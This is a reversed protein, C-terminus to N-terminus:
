KKFWTGDPKQFWHGAQGNEVIMAARREGVLVPSAGQNKGIAAYVAARDTNEAQVLTQEPKNATRYELFGKNNEGIVGQDKLTNIAPIRAAMQEKISASHAVAAMFIFGALFLYLSSLFFFNKRM